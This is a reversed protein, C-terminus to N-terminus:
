WYRRIGIVRLMTASGIRIVQGTYPAHIVQNNGIYLAVHGPYCIIDGPKAEALSAVKTGSGLQAAATRPIDIGQQKFLYQTFGSCDFGAPTTGGYVYKVGLYKFSEQVIANAVASDNNAVFVPKTSNQQQQQKRAAEEAAKAIANAIKVEYDASEKELKEMTAYLNEKKTQLSSELKSLRDMDAKISTQINKIDQAVQAMQAVKNRDYEYVMQVYEAKNLADSMNASAFIVDAMSSNQDEYMYKIRLKMDEYLAAKKEEAEALKANASELEKSKDIIDLELEDLELLLAALEKEAGELQSLVESQQNKLDNVDDAFVTCVFMSSLLVAAIASKFVRKIKIM